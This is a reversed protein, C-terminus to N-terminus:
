QEEALDRYIDRINKEINVGHIYGFPIKRQRIVNLFKNYTSHSITDTFFYVRDAKEVLSVSTTGSTDPSVFTWSRFEKKLKSVWNTHGGVIIIRSDELEKKMKEVSESKVPADKETLNYVFSRLAALERNANEAQIKLKKYDEDIKRNESLNARLNNNDVELKHVKRRLADLEELLRAENYRTEEQGESPYAPKVPQKNEIRPKIDKHKEDEPKFLPPFHDYFDTGIEGYIVKQMADTMWEQNCTAAATSGLIQSYLMLEEASYEKEIGRYTKKLIALTIALREELGENEKDCWNVYNPDFGLWMTANGLYKQMRSELKYLKEIDFRQEIEKKCDDLIEMVEDSYSFYPASEVDNVIKNLFGYLYDCDDRFEIESLSAIYLVRAINASFFNGPEDSQAVSLIEDVSISKFKKLVKYEKVYYIKYLRLILAKAYESGSNIANVILNMIFRNFLAEPWDEGANIDFYALDEYEAINAFEHKLFDRVILPFDDVMHDKVFFDVFLKECGYMDPSTKEKDSIGTYLSRYKLLVDAADSADLSVNKFLENMEDLKDSSYPFNNIKGM